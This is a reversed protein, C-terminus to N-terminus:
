KEPIKEATAEPAEPPSSPEKTIHAEKLVAIGKKRQAHVIELEMELKKQEDSNKCIKIKEKIKLEKKKLKKLVKKLAEQQKNKKYAETNLLEELVNLLKKRTM